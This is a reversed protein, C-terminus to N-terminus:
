PPTTSRAALLREVKKWALYRDWLARIWPADTEAETAAVIEELTVADFMRTSMLYDRYLQVAARCAENDERYLFV